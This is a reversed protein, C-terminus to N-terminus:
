TNCPFGFLDCLLHLKTRHCTFSPQLCPRCLFISAAPSTVEHLDDDALPCVRLGDRNRAIDQRRIMLSSCSCFAIVIETSGFVAVCFGPFATRDGGDWTTAGPMAGGAGSWDVSCDGLDEDDHTSALIAPPPRLPCCFVATRESSPELGGPAGSASDALPVKWLRFTPDWGGHQMFELTPVPQYPDPDDGTASQADADNWDDGAGFGDVDSHDSASGTAAAAGPSADLTRDREFIGRLNEEASRHKQRKQERARGKQVEELFRASGGSM